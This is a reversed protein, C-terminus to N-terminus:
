ESQIFADLASTDDMGFKTVLEQTTCSTKDLITAVDCADFSTEYDYGQAVGAFISLLFRALSLSLSISLVFHYSEM